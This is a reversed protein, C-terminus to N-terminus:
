GRIDKSYSVFYAPEIFTGTDTRLYTKVWTSFQTTTVLSHKYVKAEYTGKNVYKKIYYMRSNKREDTPGTFTRTTEYTHTIETEINLDIPDYSGSVSAKMRFIKAESFSFTEGKAVSTVFTRGYYTNRSTYEKKMEFTNYSPQFIGRLNYNYNIPNDKQPFIVDHIIISEGQNDEALDKLMSETVLDKAQDMVTIKTGNVMFTSSTTQANIPVMFSLSLIISLTISLFNKKM